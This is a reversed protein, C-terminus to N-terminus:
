KHSRGIKAFETVIYVFANRVHEMKYAHCKLHPKQNSDM